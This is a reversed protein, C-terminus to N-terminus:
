PGGHSPIGMAPSLCAPQHLCFDVIYTGIAFQRRFHIGNARHSRLSAWLRAEALTPERRLEGARHMMKPTTHKAPVPINYDLSHQSEAGEPRGFTGPCSVAVEGLYSSGWDYKPSAPHPNSLIRCSGPIRKEFFVFPFLLPSAPLLTIPYYPFLLSAWTLPPRVSILNDLTTGLPISTRRQELHPPISRSSRFLFSVGGHLPFIHPTL